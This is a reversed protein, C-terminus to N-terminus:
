TLSRLASVAIGDSAGLKERNRNRRKAFSIRARTSINNPSLTNPMLIFAAWLLVMRCRKMYARAVGCSRLFIFANTGQWTCFELIVCMSKLDFFSPNQYVVPFAPVGQM